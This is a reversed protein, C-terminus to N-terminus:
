SVQFKREAKRILDCIYERARADEPPVYLLQVRMLSPTTPTWPTVPSTSRETPGSWMSGPTMPSPSTAGEDRERTPTAARRISPWLFRPGAGGPSLPSARSAIDSLQRRLFRAPGPSSPTTPTSPGGCPHTNSRRLAPPLQYDHLIHLFTAHQGRPALRSSIHELAQCIRPQLNHNEFLSPGAELPQSILLKLAAMNPPDQIGTIYIIPTKTKKRVLCRNSILILSIVM